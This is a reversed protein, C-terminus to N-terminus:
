CDSEGKEKIISSRLFNSIAKQYYIPPYLIQSRKEKQRLYYERFADQFGALNDTIQCFGDESYVPRVQPYFDDLTKTLLNDGALYAKEQQRLWRPNGALLQRHIYQGIDQDLVVRYSSMVQKQYPYRLFSMMDESLPCSKELYKVKGKLDEYILYKLRLEAKNVDLEWLHFGMNYSYYLFQRQLITLRKKLWLREGLLWRVQYGNERYAMTREKLREISLPSCQVELALSEGVLLDAVQGLHPLVAEVQVQETQSLSKFLKAKLELHENSEQEHFFHCDKLRIHAFHPRIIRGKKLQVQSQCAPCYFIKGAPLDVVTSVLDGNDNKAVLM